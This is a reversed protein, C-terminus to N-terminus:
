FFKESSIELLYPDLLIILLGKANKRTLGANIPNRRPTNAAVAGGVVGGDEKRLM